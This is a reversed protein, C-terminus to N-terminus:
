HASAPTINIIPFQFHGLKQLVGAPISIHTFKYSLATLTLVQTPSPTHPTITKILADTHIAVPTSIIIPFQFHGLKQIVGTAKLM